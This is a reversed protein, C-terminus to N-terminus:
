RTLRRRRHWRSFIPIFPHIGETQSAKLSPLQGNCIKVTEDDEEDSYCDLERGHGLPSLHESTAEDGTVTDSSEGHKSREVLGLHAKIEESM